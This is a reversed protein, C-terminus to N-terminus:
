RRTRTRAAQARRWRRARAAAALRATWAQGGAGGGESTTPVGDVRGAVTADGKAGTEQRCSPGLWLRRRWSGCVLRTKIAACSQNGRWARAALSRGRARIPWERRLGRSAIARSCPETTPGRHPMLATARQGRM